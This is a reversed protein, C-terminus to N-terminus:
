QGFVRLFEEITKPNGAQGQAPGSVKRADTQSSVGCMFEGQATYTCKSNEAPTATKPAAPQQTFGEFMMGPMGCSHCAMKYELVIFNQGTYQKKNM